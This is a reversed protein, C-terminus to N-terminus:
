PSPAAGTAPALKGSEQRQTPDIPQVPPPMRGPAVEPQEPIRAAPEPLRKSPDTVTAGPALTGGPPLAGNPALTGNPDVTGGPTMTGTPAGAGIPTTTGPVPTVGGSQGAPPTAAQEPCGSLMLASVFYLASLMPKM